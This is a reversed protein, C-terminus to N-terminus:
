YITNRQYKKLISIKSELYEILQKNTQSCEIIKIWQDHRLRIKASTEPFSTIISFSLSAKSKDLIRYINKLKNDNTKEIMNHLNELIVILNKYSLNIEFFLFQGMLYGM